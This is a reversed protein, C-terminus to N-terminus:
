VEAEGHCLEDMVLSSLKEDIAAYARDAAIEGCVAAVAEHFQELVGSEVLDGTEFECGTLENPLWGFRWSPPIEGAVVSFGWVAYDDYMFLWEADHKNSYVLGEKLAEFTLVSFLRNCEDFTSPSTTVKM